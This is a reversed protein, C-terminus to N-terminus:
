PSLGVMIFDSHHVLGLRTSDIVSKASDGLLLYAGAPIVGGYSDQYARLMGRQAQPLHFAVGASNELVTDNVIIFGDQDVAFRDGPLGKAIKIVPQERAGTRFIVLDGRRVPGTCAAPKMMIRAGGPLLPSLSDGRVTVARAPCADQAGEQASVSSCFFGTASLVAFVLLCGYFGRRATM